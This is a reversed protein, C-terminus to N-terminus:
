CCCPMWGCCGDGDDMTAFADSMGDGSVLTHFLFLVTLAVTLVPGLVAALPLGDRPAPGEETAPAATELAWAREAEAWSEPGVLSVSLSASERLATSSTTNYAFNSPGGEALPNVVRLRARSRRAAHAQGVSRRPAPTRWMTM